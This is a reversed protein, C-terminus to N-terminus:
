TTLASWTASSRRQAPMRSANAAAVFKLSPLIVEDGPGCGVALLALHLAATGNTVAIAHRAGCLEAFAQELKAVRPGMSWWGSAVVDHAAALLEDDVAIDSLPVAWQM